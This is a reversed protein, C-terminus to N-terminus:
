RLRARARTQVAFAASAAASAAAFSAATAHSVSRLAVGATQWVQWCNRASSAPCPAGGAPLLTKFPSSTSM